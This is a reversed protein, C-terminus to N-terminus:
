NKQFQTQQNALNIQTQISRAAKDIKEGLDEVNNVDKIKLGKLLRIQENTLNPNSLLEDVKNNHTNAITRNKQIVDQSSRDLKIGNKILAEDIKARNDAKMKALVNGEYQVSKLIKEWTKLHNNIDSVQQDVEANRKQQLLM